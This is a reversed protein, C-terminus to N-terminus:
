FSGNLFDSANFYHIEDQRRNPWFDLQEHPINLKLGYDIASKWTTVDPKIKFIRKKYVVILNSKNYFHSYYNKDTKLFKQVKTLTDEILEEKVEIGYLTWPNNVSKRKAFFKIGKLFDLNTFSSDIIIGHYYM